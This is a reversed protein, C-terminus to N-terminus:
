DLLYDFFGPEMALVYTSSEKLAWKNLDKWYNYKPGDGYINLRKKIIKKDWGQSTIMAKFTRPVETRLYHFYGSKVLKWIVEMKKEEFSDDPRIDIIGWSDDDTGTLTTGNEIFFIKTGFMPIEFITMSGATTTNFEVGFLYIMQEIDSVEIM